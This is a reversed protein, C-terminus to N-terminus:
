ARDEMALDLYTLWGQLERVLGSDQKRTQLKQLVDDIHVEIRSVADGGSFGPKPNLVWDGLRQNQEILYRAQALYYEAIRRQTENDPDPVAVVYTKRNPPPSDDEYADPRSPPNEACVRCMGGAAIMTFNGCSLCRGDTTSETM